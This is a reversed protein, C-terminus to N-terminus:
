LFMQYEPFRKSVHFDQVLRLDSRLVLLSIISIVGSNALDGIRIEGPFTGFVPIETHVQFQKM